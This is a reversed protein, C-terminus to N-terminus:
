LSKISRVEQLRWRRQVTIWTSRTTRGDQLYFKGCRYKSEIFADCISRITREVIHKCSLRAGSPAAIWAVASTVWSLSLFKIKFAKVRMDSRPAQDSRPTIQCLMHDKGVQFGQLMPSYWDAGAICKCYGISTLVWYIPHYMISTGTYIPHPQHVSVVIVLYLSDKLPFELHCVLNMPGKNTCYFLGQAPLQPQVLVSLMHSSISYGTFDAERQNHDQQGGQEIKCNTVAPSSVSTVSTQPWLSLSASEKTPILGRNSKFWHSTLTRDRCAQLLSLLSQSVEALLLISYAPAKLTFASCSDRPTRFKASPLDLASVMSALCHWQLHWSWAPQAFTLLRVHWFVRQVHQSVNHVCSASRM